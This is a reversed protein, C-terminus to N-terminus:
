NLAGPTRVHRTFDNRNNDTDTSLIDRASAPALQDPVSLLSQAPSGERAAPVSNSFAIGDVKAGALTYIAVGGNDPIGEVNPLMYPLTQGSAITGSFYAGTLTLLDGENGRPALEIGVLSIPAVVVNTATYVRVVYNSVDVPANSVNRIEIFEDLSGNPGRSAVENVLIPGAAMEQGPAQEPSASAHSATTVAAAVAALVTATTLIRRM